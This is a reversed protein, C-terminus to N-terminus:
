GEERIGSRVSVTSVVCAVSLVAVHYSTGAQKIRTNSDNMREDHAKEEKKLREILLVHLLTFPPFTSHTEQVM